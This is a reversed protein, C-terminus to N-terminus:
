GMEIETDNENGWESWSGDYLSHNEHCLLDLVMSIIAATVGSGSITIARRAFDFGANEIVARLEDLDRLTQYQNENLLSTFPVNIARPMHGRRGVPWPEPAEGTFRAVPRADLIQTDDATCARQVCNKGCIMYQRRCVQFRGGQVPVPGNNNATRRNEREPIGYVSNGIPHAATFIVRGEAKWKLLGGDLVAVNNLGMYKLLWRVRPASFLGSADYVVIKSNSVIDFEEMWAEFLEVDPVMRPLDSNRDVIEDIDFFKAGPIQENNFEAIANRGTQPLHWSGDLIRLEPDGINDELWETSVLIERCNIPM